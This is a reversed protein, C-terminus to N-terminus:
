AKKSSEVMGEKFTLLRPEATVKLFAEYNNQMMTQYRSVPAEFYGNARQRQVATAGDGRNIPEKLDLKPQGNPRKGEFLIAMVDDAAADDSPYRKFFASYVTGDAHTDKHEFSNEPTAGAKPRQVAGWNLSDKGGGAPWSRGYFSEGRAVMLVYHREAQTLRQGRPTRSVVALANVDPNVPPPAPPKPELPSSPEAAVKPEPLYFPPPLGVPVFQLLDARTLPGYLGDPKLGRERQYRAILEQNESGKWYTMLNHRIAVAVAQLQNRDM